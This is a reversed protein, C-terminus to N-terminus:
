RGAESTTATDDDAATAYEVFRQSLHGIHAEVAQRAAPPDRREIAQLISGHETVSDRPLEPLRAMAAQYRSFQSKLQDYIQCLVTNGSSEMLVNHFELGTAFWRGLNHSAQHGDMKTLLARMRNIQAASAYSAALEAAFAELNGRVAFLEELERSSTERVMPGRHPLWTVLGESVLLRLAERMAARSVGFQRALQSEILRDGPQWRGEIIRERVFSAIREPLPEPRQFTAIAPDTRTAPMINGTRRQM